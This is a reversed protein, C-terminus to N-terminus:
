FVGNRFNIGDFLYLKDGIEFGVPYGEPILKGNADVYDQFDDDTDGAMAYVISEKIIKVLRENEYEQMNSM